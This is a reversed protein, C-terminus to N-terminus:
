SSVVFTSIEVTSLPKGNLSFHRLKRLNNLAGPQVLSIDNDTLDLSELNSLGVILDTTLARLYNHSLDLQSLSIIVLKFFITLM